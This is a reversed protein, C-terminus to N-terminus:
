PWTTEAPDPEHFTPEGPYDTGSPGLPLRALLWCDLGLARESRDSHAARLVHKGAPIEIDGLCVWALDLDWIDQRRLRQCEVAPSAYLRERWEGGDLSWRFEYLASRAWVRFSGPTTVEFEWRASWDTEGHHQLWAGNSLRAQEETSDPRLAGDPPVSHERADEGEIWVWGDGDAYRGRHPRVRRAPEAAPAPPLPEAVIVIEARDVYTVHPTDWGGEPVLWVYTHLPKDPPYAAWDPGKTLIGRAQHWQDDGILRGDPGGGDLRAELALGPPPMDDRHQYVWLQFRWVGDWGSTRYWLRAESRDPPVDQLATFACRSFRVNPAGTVNQLRASIEGSHALSPDGMEVSDAETVGVDCEQIEPVWYEDLLVIDGRTCAATLAVVLVVRATM